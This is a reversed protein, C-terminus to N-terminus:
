LAYQGWCRTEGSRTVGCTHQAGAEISDFLDDPVTDPGYGAGWCSVVGSGGVACAHNQGATVQQFTTGGPADTVVTRNYGWCSVAGSGRVGCTFGDGAAVDQWTVGTPKAIDTGQQGWCTVNASTDLACSHTFGATVRTYTTGAPPTAPFDNTSLNQGWCRLELGTTIACSHDRGADLAFYQGTTPPLAQGLNSAGWCVLAKDSSRIACSHDEGTSVADAVLNAPPTAKRDSDDGWCQVDGGDLQGCSHYFGPGVPDFLDGSVQLQGDDDDGWCVVEGTTRAACTHTTGPAVRAWPGADPPTKDIANSGWCAMTDDTRLACVHSPGGVVEVFPGSPVNSVITDGWCHVEGFLDLGCTYKSGATLRVFVIDDPPSVQGVDDNGWCFVDGLTDLACNHEYGVAIDRWVGGPVPDVQGQTNLGWCSVNGPGRLGCGHSLGVGVSSWQTTTPPDILSGWCALTGTETIGCSAFPGADIRDYAEDPPTSQLGSNVGWCRATGDSQVGCSFGTGATLSDFAFDATRATAQAADGDDRNDTPTITCAWTEGIGLDDAPVTDDTVISTTPGLDGAQPYPIGNRTWTVDYQIVDADADESAVLVYCTLPSGGPSSWRPRIEIAPASPPANAVTILASQRWATTAEGDNGRAEVRVTDGRNFRSPDLTNTPGGTQVTNVLWRYTVTPADAPDPDNVNVSAVAATAKTLPAPGLGVPGLVPATNLVPVPPFSQGTQGDEIGDNATVLVFVQQNKDFHASSLSNGTVGSVPAGDVWWQYSVTLNPLDASDADTLGIVSATVTDGERLETKDLSVSGFTPLANAVLEESSTKTAGTSMADSPTISCQVRDGREFSLPSLTSSTGAPVDNVTWAYSYSILDGDADFAGVPVCTATSTARLTPPDIAANVISPPANEVTHPGATQSAGAGFLDSPTVTVEITQGTSFRVVPLTDGNVGVVTIGNVKWAYSFTIDDGNADQATPTAKMDSAKTPPLPSLTLGTMEPPTNVVYDGAFSVTDGAVTDDSPTVEVQVFDGRAFLGNPLAAAAIDDVDSFTQVLEGDIRWVVDLSIDDGDPDVLGVLQVELDAGFAPSLDVIQVEDIVPASNLVTVSPSSAVTEAGGPDSATVTCSITDGKDFSAGDLTASNMALATGSVTWSYTVTVTEEDPDTVPAHTCTVTVTEDVPTPELSVAGIVPPGNAVVRPPDLVLPRGTAMGDSPTVTLGVTSGREFATAPLTPSDTGAPDGDVTWAWSLQITDGEPDVADVSATVDVGTLLPDPDLLLNSLVPAGNGVTGTATAPIGDTTGDNGVVSVTWVAGQSLESGPVTDGFTAAAGDVTWTYSLAVTDGDLDESTTVAVLDNGAQPPSPDLTVTVTPLANLVTVSATGVDSSTAADSAIVELTWTQDRTTLDASVTDGTVSPVATGDRYWTYSYTLEDGDPDTADITAVLDSVTTPDAPGISVVPTTPPANCAALAALIAFRRVTPTM